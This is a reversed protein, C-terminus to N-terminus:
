NCYKLFISLNLIRSVTFLNGNEDYISNEPIRLSGLNTGSDSSSIDIEANSTSDFTVPDPRRFLLITGYIIGYAGQAFNVTHTKEIFDGGFVDVLRISARRTGFPFELQFNGDEDTNDVYTGNVYIEGYSFYFM